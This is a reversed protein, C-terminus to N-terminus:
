RTRGIMPSLAQLMAASCWRAGADRESTVEGVFRQAALAPQPFEAPKKVLRAAMSWNLSCVRAVVATMYLSRVESDRELMNAVTVAESQGPVKALIGAANVRLVPNDEDLWRRLNAVTRRDALTAIALDIGHTTQVTMLPGGDNGALSATVESAVAVNGAILGAVAFFERRNVIGGLGVGLVREYAAVVDGTATRRGTEVLSLQSKSYHTHFAMVALSMGAALRAARLVEGVTMPTM